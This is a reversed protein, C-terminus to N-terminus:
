QYDFEGISDLSTTSTGGGTSGTWSFINQTSIYSRSGNTAKKAANWYTNSISSTRAFFVVAGDLKEMTTTFKSNSSNLATTNKIVTGDYAVVKYYWGNVSSIYGGIDVMVSKELDSTNYYAGLFSDIYAYWSCGSTTGPFTTSSATYTKSNGSFVYSLQNVTGNSLFLTNLIISHKKKVSNFRALPSSGDACYFSHTIASLGLLCVDDPFENDCYSISEAMKGTCIVNTQPSFELNLTHTTGTRFVIGRGPAELGYDNFFSREREPSSPNHSFIYYTVTNEEGTVLTSTPVYISYTDGINFTDMGIIPPYTTGGNLYGGAWFLYMTCPITKNISPMGYISTTGTITRTYQYYNSPVLIRYLGTNPGNTGYYPIYSGYGGDSLKFWASCFCLENVQLIRIRFLKNTSVQGETIASFGNTGTLKQSTYSASDYYHSNEVADSSTDLYVNFSSTAKFAGQFLEFNLKRM